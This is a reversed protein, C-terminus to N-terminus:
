LSDAFKSLPRPNLGTLRKSTGGLRLIADGKGIEDEAEAYLQDALTADGIKSELYALRAFDGWTPDKQIVFELYGKRAAQYRGEQLDLDAQM